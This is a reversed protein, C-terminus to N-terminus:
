VNTQVKIFHLINFNLYFRLINTINKGEETHLVMTKFIFVIIKTPRIKQRGWIKKVVKDTKMWNQFKM